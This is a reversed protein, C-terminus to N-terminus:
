QQHNTFSAILGTLSFPNGEPLIRTPRANWTAFVVEDFHLNAHWIEQMNHQCLASWQADTVHQDGQANIIIESKIKRKHLLSITAASESLWYPKNWNMDLSLGDLPTGTAAQYADLWEMLVRLWDSTPYNTAAEADVIKVEPYVERIERVTMALRHAVDSISYACQERGRYSYGFTLPEDMAFVDVKIGLQQLMHVALMPEYTSQVIGEIGKGCGEAPLAQLAIEIGMHHSAVFDVVRKLEDPSAHTVYYSTFGMDSIHLAAVSWETPESFLRLFDQRHIPDPGPMGTPPAFVIGQASASYQAGLSLTALLPMLRLFNLAGVGLYSRSRLRGLLERPM